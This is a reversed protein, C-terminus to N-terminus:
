QCLTEKRFTWCLDYKLALRLQTCIHEVTHKYILTNTQFGGSEVASFFSRGCCSREVDKTIAWCYEEMGKGWRAKM